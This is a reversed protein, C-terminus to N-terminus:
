NHANFLQQIHQRQASTPHFFTYPSHSRSTPSGAGPRSFHDRVRDYIASLGEWDVTSRPGLVARAM